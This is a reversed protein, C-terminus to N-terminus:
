CLWYFVARALTPFGVQKFTNVILYSIIIELAIEDLFTHSFNLKTVFISPRLDVFSIPKRETLFKGEGFQTSPM